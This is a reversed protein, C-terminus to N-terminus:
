YCGASNTGKIYYTGEAVANANPQTITANADKWYTYVLGADSGATVAPVHPNVTGGPCIKPPNTIVLNPLNALQRIDFSVEFLCNGKDKGTVKHKGGAPNGFTDSTQCSGGDVRCRYRSAGGSGQMM